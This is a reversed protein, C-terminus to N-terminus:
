SVLFNAAEPTEMTVLLSRRAWLTGHHGGWIEDIDTPRSGGLHQVIGESFLRTFTVRAPIEHLGVAKRMTWYYVAAFWSHGRDGPRSRRTAWVVQAGARWKEVMAGLTEPPDQLDAAMMVAADGRAHHLGCAIAVHSGGNRALRLGRVRPDLAALRELCAFTGDPSHDDVVLWEWALGLGGMATVIRAYLADLNSAENFAPTVISLMM